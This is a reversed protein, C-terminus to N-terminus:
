SLSFNKGALGDLVQDIFPSPFHDKKTAKNLERYDVCIRWKGNKKPVLVMPSVWESDSIPYIFGVDLLKQVEEKVIDKLALNMRRQPQRVPKCGDNIYIHHTYVSPHIGKMEKYSWSFAELHRTLLSCLEKGQSPSLSSSIKLTREPGFEVNKVRPTTPDTACLNVLANAQTDEVLEELSLAGPPPNQILNEILDDETQPGGRTSEVICLPTSYVEDKEGEELWLSLDHELLPQALPYLVLEKSMPGNKITMSGARCSIYADVTALWPRGLILPYGTLKVKPQLVLFDAPYEWSDVSVLVDEVIGEPTVTSHDGLQLMTSTKRLSSQLNLKLMTDRSMVNIAAGLDILTHPIITDNIHLDVVPSGPDLYKPCIVQGLM